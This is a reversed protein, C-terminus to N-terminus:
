RRRTDVAASFQGGPLPRFSVGQETMESKEDPHDTDDGALHSLLQLARNLGTGLRHAHHGARALDATVGALLDAPDGTPALADLRLRAPLDTHLRTSIQDLLQPLRDVLSTLAGLLLYADAPDTLTGARRTLHNLTRLAEAAQDAM